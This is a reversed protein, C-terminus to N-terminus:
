PTTGSWGGGPGGGIGGGHGGEAGYGSPDYLELSNNSVYGYLNIGGGTDMPDRNLFRGAASDYYRHGLLQLGPRNAKLWLSISLEDSVPAKSTPYYYYVYSGAEAHVRIHECYQGTRATADSM